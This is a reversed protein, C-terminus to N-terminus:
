GEPLISATSSGVIEKQTWFSIQSGSVLLDTSATLIVQAPITLLKMEAKRLSEPGTIDLEM